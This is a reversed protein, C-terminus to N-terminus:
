LAEDLMLRWKQLTDNYISAHLRDLLNSMSQIESKSIPKLMFLLPDNVDINEQETQKEVGGVIHSMMKNLMREVKHLVIDGLMRNGEVDSILVGLSPIHDSIPYGFQFGTVKEKLTTGTLTEWNIYQSQEFFTMHDIGYTIKCARNLEPHDQTDNLIFLWYMQTVPIYRINLRGVILWIRTKTRSSRYANGARFATDLWDYFIPDSPLGVHPIISMLTHMGFEIYPDKPYDINSAPVYFTANDTATLYSYLNLLPVDTISKANGGFKVTKLPILATRDIFVPHREPRNESLRPVEWICDQAAVLSYREGLGKMHQIYHRDKELRCLKLLKTAVEEPYLRALLQLASSYVLNLITVYYTSIIHLWTHEVDPDSSKSRM